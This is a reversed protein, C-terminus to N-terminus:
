RLMLYKNAAKCSLMEGSDSVESDFDSLMVVGNKKKFDFLMVM